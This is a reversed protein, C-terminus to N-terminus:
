VTIGKMEWSCFLLHPVSPEMRELASIVTKYSGVELFSSFLVFLPVAPIQTLQGLPVTRVRQVIVVWYEWATGEIVDHQISM